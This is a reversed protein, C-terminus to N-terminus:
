EKRPGLGFEKRGTPRLEKRKPKGERKLAADLAKRCCDIRHKTPEQHKHNRVYLRFFDADPAESHQRRFMEYLTVLRIGELRTKPTDMAERRGRRRPLLMRFIHPYGKCLIALLARQAKEPGLFPSFQSHLLRFLRELKDLDFDSEKAPKARAREVIADLTRMLDAAPTVAM